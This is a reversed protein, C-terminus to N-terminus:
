LINFSGIRLLEFAKLSVTITIKEFGCKLNVYSVRKKIWEPTVQYCLITGLRKVESVKRNVIGRVAPVSLVLKLDIKLPTGLRKM